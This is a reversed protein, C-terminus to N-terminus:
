RQNVMNTRVRYAGRTAGVLLRWSGMVDVAQDPGSCTLPDKHMRVGSSARIKGEKRLVGVILREHRLQLPPLVRRLSQQWLSLPRRTM